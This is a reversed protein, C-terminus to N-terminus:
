DDHHCDYVNPSMPGLVASPQYSVATEYISLLCSVRGDLAETLKTLSVLVDCVLYHGVDANLLGSACCM